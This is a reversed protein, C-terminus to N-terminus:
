YCLNSGFPTTTVRNKANATLKGCLASHYYPPILKIVFSRLFIFVISPFVAAAYTEYANVSTAAIKGIVGEELM